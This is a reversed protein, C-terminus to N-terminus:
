AAGFTLTGGNSYSIYIPEELFPWLGTNFTSGAPGVTPAFVGPLNGINMPPPPPGAQNTPTGYLWVGTQQNNVVIGTGPPAPSGAILATSGVGTTNFDTIPISGTTGGSDFIMTQGPLSQFANSNDSQLYVTGVSLGGVNPAGSLSNTGGATPAIPNDGFQLYPANNVLGGTNGSANILVGDGLVGPLAATVISGTGKVNPGIGLIPDVHSWIPDTINQDTFPQGGILTGSTIVRITTEGTSLGGPFNVKTTPYVEYNYISGDSFKVTGSAGTPQGLDALNVDTEPIYFGKAGTDVIATIGGPITTGPDGVSVNNVLLFPGTGSYPSDALQM